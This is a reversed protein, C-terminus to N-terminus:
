RVEEADLRYIALHNGDVPDLIEELSLIGEVAVPDVAFRAIRGPNMHVFICDYLAAGPGFCCEQDDRVLVFSTGTMQQMTKPHIWGRIRIRKGLVKEIQPTLMAREFPQGKEIEFKIADFSIPRVPMSQLAPPSM